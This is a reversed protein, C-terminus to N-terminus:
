LYLHKARDDNLGIDLFDSICALRFDRLNDVTVLADSNDGIQESIYKFVERLFACKDDPLLSGYCLDDNLLDVLWDRQLEADKQLEKELNAMKKINM